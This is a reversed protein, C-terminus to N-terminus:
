TGAPTTTPSSRRVGSPQAGSAALYRAATYIADQPDDPDAPASPATISVAYQAWTSPMFQMWGLAGASSSSLDTGFTTEVSNIAALYAYGDAGLGYRAAAAIYYQILAPEGVASPGQGCGSAQQEQDAILMVLGLLLALVGVFGAAAATLAVRM